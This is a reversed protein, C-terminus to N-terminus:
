NKGNNKGNGNSRQDKETLEEISPAQWRKIPNEPSRSVWGLITFCIFGILGLWYKENKIEGIHIQMYGVVEFGLLIILYSYQKFESITM